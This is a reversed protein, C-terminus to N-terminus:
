GAYPNLARLAKRAIDVVDHENYSRPLPVGIREFLDQVEEVTPEDSLPVKKYKELPVRRAQEFSLRLETDCNEYFFTGALATMARNPDEVTMLLRTASIDWRFTTMTASLGVGIDLLGYRQRHWFAALITAYSEKRVRDTTWTEGTGDPADSLSRRYHAYTECVEANTPDVIEIRVTLHRKVRRAAAVCEPLTVARLYTGTGGRFSWRTTDKRAEAHAQAIEQRSGLVRVLQLADLAKRTGAVLGDIEELRALRVPLDALAGSTITEEVPAQRVRDRLLATAVLALIVLTAASVLQQQVKDGEPPKGFMDDPMIGLVGVVVALVLAIAGDANQAAWPAVRSWAARFRSM